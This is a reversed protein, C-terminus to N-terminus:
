LGIVGAMAQFLPRDPRGWDQAMDFHNNGDIELAAVPHGEARWAALKSRREAILHNEDAAAPSSNQQDSM